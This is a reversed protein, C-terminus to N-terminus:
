SSPISFAVLMLGGVPGGLWGCSRPGPGRDMAGQFAAAGQLSGRAARFALSGYLALIRHASGLAVGAHQQNSRM